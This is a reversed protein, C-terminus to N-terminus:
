GNFLAFHMSDKRGNWDAGCFIGNDRMIKLFKDSWHTNAQALKEMAANLDIAAAWSHLSTSNRGRVQRSNFCGDYTKIERLLGEKRMQTFANFLKAKFDKNIMMKVLNDDPDPTANNDVDALEPFDNIVNWVTCYKIQYAANPEGYHALMEKQASM